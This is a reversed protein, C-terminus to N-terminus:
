VNKTSYLNLSSTSSTIEQQLKTILILYIFLSYMFHVFSTMNKYQSSRRKKLDSFRKKKNMREFHLFRNWSMLTSIAHMDLIIMIMSAIM